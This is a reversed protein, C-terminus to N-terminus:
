SSLPFIILSLTQFSKQNLFLSSFFRFGGSPLLNIKCIIRYSSILLLTGLIIKRGLKIPLYLFESSFFWFGRFSVSLDPLNIQSQFNPPTYEIYNEEINRNSLYGKTSLYKKSIHMNKLFMMQHFIHSLIKWFAMSQFIILAWNLSNKRFSLSFVPTFM